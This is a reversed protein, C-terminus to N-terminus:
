SRTCTHAVCRAVQAEPEEICVYPATFHIVRCLRHRIGASITVSQFPVGHSMGSVHLHVSPALLLVPSRLARCSGAIVSQQRHVVGRSDSRVVSNRARACIHEQNASQAPISVHLM